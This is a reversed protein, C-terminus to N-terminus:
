MQLVSLGFYVHDCAKHSLFCLEQLLCMVYHVKTKVENVKDVRIVHIGERIESQFNKLFFLKLVQGSLIRLVIRWFLSLEKQREEKMVARVDCLILRM